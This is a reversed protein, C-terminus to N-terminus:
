HRKVVSAALDLAYVIWIRNHAFMAVPVAAGKILLDIPVVDIIDRILAVHPRANSAWTVILHVVDRAMNLQLAALEPPLLFFEM